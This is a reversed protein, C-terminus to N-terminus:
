QISVDSDCTLSGLMCIYCMTACQLVNYCVTFLIDEPTLALVKDVSEKRGLIDQDQIAYQDFYNEVM